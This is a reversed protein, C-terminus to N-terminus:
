KKTVQSPKGFLGLSIFLSPPKAPPAQRPHHVVGPIVPEWPSPRYLARLLNEGEELFNYDGPRIYSLSHFLVFTLFGALCPTLPIIPNAPRLLEEMAVLIVDKQEIGARGLAPARRCGRLSAPLGLLGRTVAKTKPWGGVAREAKWTRHLAGDVLRRQGQNGDAGADQGHHAAGLEGARQGDLHRKVYRLV